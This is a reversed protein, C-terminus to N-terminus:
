CVSRLDLKSFMTAGVFTYVIDNFRPLMYADKRSKSNLVRWNICFRLSCDRKRFLVGNSSYPCDSQKIVGANLMETMRHPVDEYM